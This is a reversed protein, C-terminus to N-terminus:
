PIKGAGRREWVRLPGLRLQFPPPIPPHHQLLGPSRKWCSTVIIPLHPDQWRAM